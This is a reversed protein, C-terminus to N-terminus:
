TARASATKAARPAQSGPSCWSPSRRGPPIRAHAVTQEPGLQVRELTAQGLAPLAAAPLEQRRGSRAACPATRCAQFWLGDPALELSLMSQTASAPLTLAVPAAGAPSGLGLAALVLGLACGLGRPRPSRRRAM